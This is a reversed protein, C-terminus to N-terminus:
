VLKRLSVWLRGKKTERELGDYVAKGFGRVSLIDGEKLEHSVSSVTFHNVDV